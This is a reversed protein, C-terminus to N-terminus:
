RPRCTMLYIWVLTWFVFYMSVGLLGLTVALRDLTHLIAWTISGLFALSSLFFLGQKVQGRAMQCLGPLFLSLSLVVDPWLEQPARALRTPVRQQVTPGALPTKGAQELESAIGLDYVKLDGM